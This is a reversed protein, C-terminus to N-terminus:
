QTDQWNKIDDRGDSRNPGLSWLDYGFKSNNNNAYRGPGTSRNNWRYYLYDNGWPDKFPVVTTRNTLGKFVLFPKLNDNTQPYRWLYHVWGTSCNRDLNTDISAPYNGYQARYEELAYKIKEIDAVARDHDSKRSAYGAVGLVLAILIGIIAIVTMLEVLTFGRKSVAPLEVPDSARKSVAPLEVLTFGRSRQVSPHCMESM